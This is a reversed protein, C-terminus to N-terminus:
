VFCNIFNNLEKYESKYTAVWRIFKFRVPAEFGNDSLWTKVEEVEEITQVM